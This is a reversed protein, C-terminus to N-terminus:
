KKNVKHLNMSPKTACLVFRTPDSNGWLPKTEAFSPLGPLQLSLPLTWSYFWQFSRCILYELTTKASHQRLLYLAIWGSYATSIQHECKM